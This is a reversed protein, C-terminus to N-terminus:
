KLSKIIESRCESCIFRNKFIDGEKHRGCFYCPISTHATLKDEDIELLIVRGPKMNESVKLSNPLPINGEDNIRCIVNDVLM